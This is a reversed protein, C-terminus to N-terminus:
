RLVHSESHLHSKTGFAVCPTSCSLFNLLSFFYLSFFSDRSGLSEFKIGAELPLKFLSPLLNSVSADAINPPGQALNPMVCPERGKRNGRVMWWRLSSCECIVLLMPFLLSFLPSHFSKTGLPAHRLKCENERPIM